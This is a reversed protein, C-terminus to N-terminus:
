SEDPSSESSSCESVLGIYAHRSTDTSPSTYVNRSVREDVFRPSRTSLSVLRSCTPLPSIM